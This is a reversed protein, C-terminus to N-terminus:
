STQPRRFPHEATLQQIILEDTVGASHLEVIKQQSLQQALGTSGCVASYLTVIAPGFPPRFDIDYISVPSESYISDNQCPKTAPGTSGVGTLGKPRGSPRPPVYTNASRPNYRFPIFRSQVVGTPM